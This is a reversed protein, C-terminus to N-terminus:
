PAVPLIHIINGKRTYRKEEADQPPDVRMEEKPDLRPASFLSDLKREIEIHKVTSPCPTTTRPLSSSSSSGEQLLADLGDHPENTLGSDITVDGMPYSRTKYKKRM